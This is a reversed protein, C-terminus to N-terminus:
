VSPSGGCDAWPCKSSAQLFDFILRIFYFHYAIYYKGSSISLPTDTIDMNTNQLKITDYTIVGNSYWENQYGCWAGHASQTSFEDSLTNIKEENRAVKENLEKIDEEIIDNLRKNEEKCLQNEELVEDITKFDFTENGRTAELWLKNTEKM